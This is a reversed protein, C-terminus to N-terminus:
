SRGPPLLCREHGAATDLALLEPVTVARLGRLRIARLIQPMAQVTWPHLDHM